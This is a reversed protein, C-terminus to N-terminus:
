QFYKRLHVGNWTNNVSTGDLRSIQYTGQSIFKAIKYPDEWNPKFKGTMSPQSVATERLVLDNVLFRKEKIKKNFYSATKLQQIKVKPAADERIEEVLDNHLKISELSKEPNFSEVRPSSLSVEVPSVAEIGYDM